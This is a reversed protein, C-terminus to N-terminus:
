IKCTKAGTLSQSSSSSSPNPADFDGKSVITLCFFTMLLISAKESPRDTVNAESVFGDWITSARPKASLEKLDNNM